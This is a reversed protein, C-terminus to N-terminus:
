EFEGKMEFYSLLNVIKFKLLPVDGFKQGPKFPLSTMKLQVGHTGKLM